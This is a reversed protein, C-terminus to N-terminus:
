ITTETLLPIKGLSKADDDDDLTFMGENSFDRISEKLFDASTSRKGPMLSASDIEEEDEVSSTFVSCTLPTVGTDEYMAKNPALGHKLESKKRKAITVDYGVRQLQELRQMEEKSEIFYVDKINERFSVKKVEPIELTGFPVTASDERGEDCDSNDSGYIEYWRRNAEQLRQARTLRMKRAKKTKRRKLQRRTLGGVMQTDATRFRAASNRVKSAKFYVSLSFALIIGLSVLIIAIRTKVSFISDPETTPLPAQSVALFSWNLADLFTM